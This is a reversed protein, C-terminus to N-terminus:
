RSFFLRNINEGVLAVLKNTDIGRVAAARRYLECIDVLSDDTELLLRETAVTKMAESQYKEGFSLYFGQSQLSLALEKKGRFGHIIWPQKPRYEKKLAIVENFSKVCHIFLPFGHTEAREIVGRFAKLQLSFPTDCLKDLGAEGLAVTRPDLMMEDLWQFQLMCDDESLFWPHIGVSLFRATSIDAHGKDDMRCSLFSLGASSTLRHTHVDFCEMRNQKDTLLLDPSQTTVRDEGRIAVYFVVSPM